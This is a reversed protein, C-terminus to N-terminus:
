GSRTEGVHRETPHRVSVVPVPCLRPTASTPGVASLINRVWLLLYPRLKSLTFLRHPSM